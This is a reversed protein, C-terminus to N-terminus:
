KADPWGDAVMARAATAKDKQLRDEAGRKSMGGDVTKTKPAAIPSQAPAAPPPPPFRKQRIQLLECNAKIRHADMYGAQRRIVEVIEGITPTTKWKHGDIIADIAGAVAFAPFTSLREVYIAMAKQDPPPLVLFLRYILVGVRKPGSPVLETL